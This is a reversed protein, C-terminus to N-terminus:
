ISLDEWEELERPSLTVRISTVTSLEDYVERRLPNEELSLHELNPCSLIAEVEVDAIFNKGALVKALSPMEALVPPLNVFSNASINITELQTLASMEAPLASIRNNSINLDTIQSFAMPFKAPIKSIVNGQLTCSTLETNRMLHFVAEPVQMLQCESLDLEKSELADDCRHVVKVVGKGLIKVCRATRM